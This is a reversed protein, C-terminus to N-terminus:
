IDCDPFTEFCVECLHDTAMNQSEFKLCTIEYYISESKRDFTQQQHFKHYKWKGFNGLSNERTDVRMELYEVQDLNSFGTM